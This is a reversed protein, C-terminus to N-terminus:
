VSSAPEHHEGKVTDEKQEDEDDEEEEEDSDGEDDSASEDEKEDDSVKGLGLWNEEDDVEAGQEGEKAESDSDDDEAGVVNELKAIEAEEDSGLGEEDDSSGIGEFEDEDSLEGELDAMMEAELDDEDDGEALLAETEKTLKAAEREPARRAIIEDVTVRPQRALHLM